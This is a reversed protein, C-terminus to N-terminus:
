KKTQNRKERQSRNKCFTGPVITKVINEACECKTWVNNKWLEGKLNAELNRKNKANNKISFISFIQESILESGSKATPLVKQLIRAWKKWNKARKPRIKPPRPRSTPLMKLTKQPKLFPLLIQSSKPSCKQPSGPTPPPDPSPQQPKFLRDSHHHPM